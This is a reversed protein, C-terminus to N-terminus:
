LNHNRGEMNKGRTKGGKRWYFEELADMLWRVEREELSISVIFGRRNKNIRLRDMNKGEYVVDFSKRDIMVFKRRQGSIREEKKQDVM